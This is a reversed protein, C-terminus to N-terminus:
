RVWGGWEAAGAARVEGVVECVPAAGLDDGLHQQQGQEPGGEVQGEGGQRAAAPAARLDDGLHVWRLM